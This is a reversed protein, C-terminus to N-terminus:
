RHRFLWREVVSIIANTLAGLIAFLIIALFMRDVRGNQQSDTLLFGLGISSNALEAAVLFLWSQALALRLGSVLAPLVAPLQVTTLLRLRGLGFARGVEVLHPDVHRLGDALATFVPFSAGIAVLTIKPTEFIGLYLILLPLWALSPVARLAAILPALLVNVIRSLGVLSGLVLGVVSGIAFGILVRQTSIAIDTYLLGRHLPNVQLDVAANWVAAPSPLRYAPIAGSATVAWWIAILAVPIIAGGVITWWRRPGAGRRVSRATLQQQRAILDIEIQEVTM